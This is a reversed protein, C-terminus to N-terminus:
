PTSKLSDRELLKALANANSIIRETAARAEQIDPPDRSLWLRCASADTVLATLAEKMEPAVIELAVPPSQSSKSFVQNM